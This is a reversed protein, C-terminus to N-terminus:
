NFDKKKSLKNIRLPLSLSLALLPPALLCPSVSDWAPEMSDARAQSPAWDWLGQSWSRLWIMLRVSLGSLWGPAGRISTKYDTVMPHSGLAHDSFPKTNPWQTPSKQSYPYRIRGRPLITSDAQIINQAFCVPDRVHLALVDDLLIKKNLQCFTLM